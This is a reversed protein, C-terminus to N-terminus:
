LEFGNEKLIKFVEGLQLRMNEGLDVDMDMGVADQYDQYEVRLKRAIRTMAEDGQRTKDQDLMDVLERHAELDASVAGLKEELESIRANQTTITERAKEVREELVANRGKLSKKEEKLRSAEATASVNASRLAEVRREQRQIFAIVQSAEIGDASADARAPVKSVSLTYAAQGCQADSSVSGVPMSSDHPAEVSLSSVWGKLSTVAIRESSSLKAKGDIGELVPAILKSFRVAERESLEARVGEAKIEKGAVEQVLLKRVYGSINGSTNGEKNTAADPIRKILWAVQEPSTPDVIECALLSLYMRLMIEASNARIAAHSGLTTYPISSSARKKYYLFLPRAACYKFGDCLLTISADNIGGAEALALWLQEFEKGDAKSPEKKAKKGEIFNNLENALQGANIMETDNEAMINRECNIRSAPM